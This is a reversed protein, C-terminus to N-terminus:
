GRVGRRLTSISGCLYILVAKQCATTPELRELSAVFSAPGSYMM